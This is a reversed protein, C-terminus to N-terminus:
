LVPQAFFFDGVERGGLTIYMLSHVDTLTYIKVDFPIKVTLEMSTLYAIFGELLFCGGEWM